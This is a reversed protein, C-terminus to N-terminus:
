EHRKRKMKEIKSALDALFNDMGRSILGVRVIVQEPKIFVTRNGNIEDFGGIQIVGTGKPTAAIIFEFVALYSVPTRNSADLRYEIRYVVDDQKTPDMSQRLVKYSVTTQVEPFGKKLLDLIPENLSVGNERCFQEYRQAHLSGVNPASMLADQMTVEFLQAATLKESMAKGEAEPSRGCGCLAAMIAICVALYNTKM